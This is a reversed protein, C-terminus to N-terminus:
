GKEARLRKGLPAWSGTWLWDVIYGLGYQNSWASYTAWDSAIHGQPVKSPVVPALVGSRCCLGQAGQLQRLCATAM